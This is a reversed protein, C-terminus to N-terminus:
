AVRFLDGDKTAALSLIHDHVLEPTNRRDFVQFRIGDFRALGVQTGLWLYGERTQAIARISNQPLGDQITWVQHAYQTVYKHPELGQVPLCAIGAIAFKFSIGRPM